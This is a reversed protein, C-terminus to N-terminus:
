SGDVTRVSDEFNGHLAESVMSEAAKRTRDEATPWLHALHQPHHDSHRTRLSAPRDGRRVGPCHLGSAYFNRLDHLTIGSLRARSLTTRWRSSVTNQHPPDEGEGTFLWRHRGVDARYETVYESVMNVLTPALYVVRESGWKPPRVEFGGNERQIQRSVTLSRRLFDIDGIQLGAAEGLRLGAFACLGLFPRFSPLAADLLGGVEVLTPIKMAAAQRRRRPLTIGEGPDLSIVRDTVAGSPCIPRQQGPHPYHGTGFRTEDDKSGGSWTRGGSAASPIDAFSVSGAALDM